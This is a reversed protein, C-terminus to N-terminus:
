GGTRGGRGEKRERKEGLALIDLSRIIFDSICIMVACNPDVAAASSFGRDFLPSLFPLMKINVRTGERSLRIKVEEVSFDGPLACKGRSYTISRDVHSHM